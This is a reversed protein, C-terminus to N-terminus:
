GDSRFSRCASHSSQTFPMGVRIASNSQESEEPIGHPPDEVSRTAMGHASTNPLTPLNILLQTCYLQPDIDRRRCTSSLSSLIAATRGGRLNGIKRGFRDEPAGACIGATGGVVQANASV